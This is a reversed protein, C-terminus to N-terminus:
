GSVHMTAINLAVVLMVVGIGIDLIRWTIPRAMLGSAARAGFGLGSFWLISGLSAGLGFFWRHGGYQNGISGLLLVTDLYVHPNLFTFALTTMAVSRATVQRADSPKLSESKRARWFSFVAYGVLYVVGIWKLVDLVTPFSRVIRGIGGVGAFILVVDSIACIFVALGVHKRSLGLRLVYANQAGIAVILSLGTLFGALAATM